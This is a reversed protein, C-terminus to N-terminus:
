PIDPNPSVPILLHSDYKGGTHIIHYGKNILEANPLSTLFPGRMNYGAVLVRLQEGAHYRMGTPWLAIDVPVIQGPKLPQVEGFPYYPEAPTSKDEDLKRLSLRQKGYPGTYTMSRPIKNKLLGHRFATRIFLQVPKPLLIPIHSLLGGRRDLKQLWVFLDMDDNGEAEVWLRLKSFGVMETDRKFRMKFVAKGKEDDARYRAKSENKPPSLTLSSNEADLYLKTFRTQPLPFDEEIHDVTDMGGPDLISLRVKPTNEWGNDVGKLYHDFFRRLDEYYKPTYYDPWEMTNHIRLWKDKINLECWSQLTGRTHIPNTWSAVVYAAPVEINEAKALKDDWYSNFLPYKDAMAPIDEIRNNGYTESIIYDNFGYDKIGGCFIDNRYLDNLGEWPAIAALHPPNLAAIFWQMIALQSNGTLATRCNCWRQGAVWEIFDYGDKAGQTGWWAFHGESMMVGRIDPTLIAYGHNCWYAPDPGEFTEYGSTAGLPIGARFPLTDINVSGCLKGYPSWAILAPYKEKDDTPRFVDTYIVAGDRLTVPVDREWAIDCPVTLRGKSKVTGKRIITSSPNLGPYRAKPDTIPTSKRYLVEVREEQSDGKKTFVPDENGM